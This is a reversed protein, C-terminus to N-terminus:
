GKGFETDSLRDCEGGGVVVPDNLTCARSLKQLLDVLQENSAAPEVFFNEGCQADRIHGNVPRFVNRDVRGIRHVFGGADM